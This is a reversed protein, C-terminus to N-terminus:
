HEGLRGEVDYLYKYAGNPKSPATTPRAPVHELKKMKFGFIM